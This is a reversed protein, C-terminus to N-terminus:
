WRPTLSRDEPNRWNPLVGPRKRMIFPDLLKMPLDSSCGDFQDRVMAMLAHRIQEPVDNHTDGYGAVFRVTVAEPQDRTDPWDYGYATVIRAEADGVGALQYRSTALTQSAGALDVYTISTVSQVPALPLRIEDYRGRLPFCDIKYDWTQTLLALGIGGDRGDIQSVASRVYGAILADDTEVDSDLRAGAKVEALTVPLSTPATVLVLSM